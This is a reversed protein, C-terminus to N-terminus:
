FRGLGNVGMVGAKSGGFHAVKWAPSQAIKKEAEYQMAPNNTRRFKEIWYHKVDDIVHKIVLYNKSDSLGSILSMAEKPPIGM